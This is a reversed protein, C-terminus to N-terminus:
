FASQVFSVKELKNTDENRITVAIQSDDANGSSAGLLQPGETRSKVHVISQSSSAGPLELMDKTHVGDGSPTGPQELRVVLANAPIQVVHVGGQILAAIKIKTEELHESRRRNEAWMERLLLLGLVSFGFVFYLYLALGSVDASNGM